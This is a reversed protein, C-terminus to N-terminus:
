HSNAACRDVRKPAPKDGFIMAHRIRALPASNDLEVNHGHRIVGLKALVKDLAVPDARRAHDAALQELVHMGVAHDATQLTHELGWVETADGGAALVARMGDELGLRGGTAQRIRLDALMVMIAGGWYIGRYSKASELGKAALAPLGQPMANAFETWIRREGLWGARARILPEYYTALGEDFWKGEGVYSPSGTHFLEHVLVWDGYLADCTAHEGVRVVIAPSSDPLVKGFVVHARGEAPLVIVLAHKVPFGGWFRAVATASDHVWRTILAHSADLPADLTAVTIEATTRTDRSLAGPGPLEFHALQFHGFVSYAGVRIEQTELEYVPGAPTLGTVFREGPPTHVDITVPAADPLPDPRLIWTSVPAVLSGGVREAVDFDRADTAVSDLDLHYSIHANLTAHPLVWRAGHRVLQRGDAKVDSYHAVSQSESAVFGSVMAGTCRADVDLALPRGARVTVDYRCSAVHARKAGAAPVRARTCGLCTAVVLLCAAAGKM